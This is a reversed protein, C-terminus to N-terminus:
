PQTTIKWFGAPWGQVSGTYSNVGPM